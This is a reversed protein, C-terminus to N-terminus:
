LGEKEGVSPVGKEGSLHNAVVGKCERLGLGWAVPDAIALSVQDM